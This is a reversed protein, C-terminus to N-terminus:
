QRLLTQTVSKGAELGDPLTLVVRSRLPDHLVEVSDGRFEGSVEVTVSTMENVPNSVSIEVRDASERLLVLCPRDVTLTRASAVSVSGPEYFAIGTVGLKGHRVAQVSPDNRLVQVPLHEVYAAVDEVAIGPVVAYAYTAQQPRQGHDIWLTYVDDSIEERSYQHNIQWWTGTRTTNRIGISAPQLLLCAVQDHWIWRLDALVHEARDLQRSGIGDAVRVTGTLRCQNITTLVRNDSSCTIGAGLCVYEDDFFFWSKRASLADRSFDFAAAGYTGDSVGGVFDREGKVRPSGTLQPKQEVTTGPIKQWDWVAFLDAYERGTRMVLNCGDAIHHSLLGEENHPGDTNNIRRSYMRASTYYGPRHHVMLDSRWYHRNGVLMSAPQDAARSALARFEDERGTPLSLM